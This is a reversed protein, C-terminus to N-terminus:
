KSQRSHTKLGRKPCLQACVMNMAPPVTASFENALPASVDAVCSDCAIALCLTTLKVPRSKNCGVAAARLHCCAVCACAAESPTSGAPM